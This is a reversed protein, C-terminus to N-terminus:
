KPLLLYTNPGQVLKISLYLKDVKENNVFGSFLLNTVTRGFLMIDTILLSQLTYFEISIKVGLQNASNEFRACM